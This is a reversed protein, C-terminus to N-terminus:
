FLTFTNGVLGLPWRGAEFLRFKAAFAHEEGSDDDENYDNGQAALVLAAQYAAQGAAQAAARILGDDVIGARAAAAVAKIQALETARLAVHNLAVELDYSPLWQEAQELLAQHAQEEAEWFQADWDQEAALAAAERWGELGSVNVDLFGLGACYSEAWILQTNKIPRGTQSFWDINPLLRALRAVARLGAIAEAGPILDELEDEFHNGQSGDDDNAASM